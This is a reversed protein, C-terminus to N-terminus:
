PIQEKSEHIQEAHKTKPHHCCEELNREDRKKVSVHVTSALCKM